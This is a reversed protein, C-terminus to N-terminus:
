SAAIRVELPSVKCRLDRLRADGTALGQVECPSAKCRLKFRVNHLRAVYAALGQVAPPAVKCRM